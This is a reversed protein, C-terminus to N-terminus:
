EGEPKELSHYADATKLLQEHLKKRKVPDKETAIQNNIVEMQKRLGNASTNMATDPENSEAVYDEKPMGDKGMMEPPVGADKMKKIAKALKDKM